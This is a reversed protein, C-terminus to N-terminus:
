VGNLTIIHLNFLVLMSETRPSRTNSAMYDQLYTCTESSYAEM